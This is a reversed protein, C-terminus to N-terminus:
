PMTLRGRARSPLETNVQGRTAVHQLPPAIHV